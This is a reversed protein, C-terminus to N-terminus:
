TSNGVRQASAKEMKRPKPNQTKPKPKKPNLGWRLGPGGHLVRAFIEISGKCFGSVCDLVRYFLMSSLVRYLWISDLVTHFGIYFGKHLGSAKSPALPLRPRGRCM